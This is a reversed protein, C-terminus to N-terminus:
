TPKEGAVSSAQLPVSTDALRNIQKFQLPTAAQDPPYPPLYRSWAEDFAERRYGKRVGNESVRINQPRIGFPRLLSALNAPTIPREMKGFAVWPGGDDSALGFCLDASTIEALGHENFYARIDRLLDTRTTDQEGDESAVANLAKCAVLAKEPWELGAVEAITLLPRWNDAARDNLFKPPDRDVTRLDSDVDRVWRAARRRLEDFQHPRDGRLRELREEETKRQMRVIIGRDELTDAIRGISALAVPAWTSFQVTEHEDGDCRVVSGDQAYGSNIVNRIQENTTGFSDFEDLLLTPRQVEVVRFLAPASINAVSLSKKCLFELIRLLTSKGCRKEPSRIILRPSIFSCEFAYTHVVWLALADAAGEPVSLFRRFTAAIEDLLIAGDVDEDWPEVDRIRLSSGARKDDKANSVGRERKVADDLVQLRVGLREAETERMREYILPDLAALRAITARQDDPSCKPTGDFM